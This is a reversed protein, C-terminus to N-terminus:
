AVLVFYVGSLLNLLLIIYCFNNSLLNIHINTQFPFNKDIIERV